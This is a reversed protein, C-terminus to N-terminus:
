GISVGNKVEKCPRILVLKGDADEASLIMGESMVGLIKRPAFNAIFCIQTGVLKETVPYSQAIGSLITREGAGDNIKFQLLKDSKPVKKCDLVTGVRIDNKTFDDFTTNPKIANPKYSDLENAKKTDLLKQIQAEIEADEIKDFLLAAEGLEHGAPLIDTRGFDAWSLKKNEKNTM